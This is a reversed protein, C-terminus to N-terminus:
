DRCNWRLTWSGNVDEVSLFYIGASLPQLSEGRIPETVDSRSESVLNTYQDEGVRHLNVTLSAVGEADPEITWLFVSKTCAPLDYNYTVLPGGGAVKIRSGVPMHGDQCEGQLTWSEDTNEITFYYEGSVLPRLTEGEIIELSESKYARALNEEGDADTRHLNIVLSATGSEDPKATWYFVAKDCASLDYKDSVTEGEGEL